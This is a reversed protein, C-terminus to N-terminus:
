LYDHEEMMSDLNLHCQGRSRWSPMHTVLSTNDVEADSPLSDGASCVSRKVEKYFAEVVWKAPQTLWPNCTKSFIFNVQRAPM